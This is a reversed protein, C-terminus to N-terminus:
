VGKKFNNKYKKIVTSKKRTKVREELGKRQDRKETGEKRERM